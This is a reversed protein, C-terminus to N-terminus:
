KRAADAIMGKLRLAFEPSALRKSIAGETIIQSGCQGALDLHHYRRPPNQVRHHNERREPVVSGRVYAVKSRAPRNGDRSDTEYVYLAAKQYESLYM